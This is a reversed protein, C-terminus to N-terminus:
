LLNSQQAARAKLAVQINQVVSHGPCEICVSNSGVSGASGWATSRTGGLASGISQANRDLELTDAEDRGLTM